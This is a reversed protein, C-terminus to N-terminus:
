GPLNWAVAAVYAPRMESAAVHTTGLAEGKPDGEKHWPIQGLYALNWPVM